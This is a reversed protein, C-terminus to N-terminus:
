VDQPLAPWFERVGVASPDLIRRLSIQADFKPHQKRTVDLRTKGAPFNEPMHEFMRGKMPSLDHSHNAYEPVRRRPNVPHVIVKGDTLTGLISIPTGVRASSALIPCGM